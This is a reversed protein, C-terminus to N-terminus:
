FVMSLACWLITLLLLCVAVAFTCASVKFLTEFVRGRGFCDFAVALALFTPAAADTVLERRPGQMGM